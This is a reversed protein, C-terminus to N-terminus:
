KFCNPSLRLRFSVGPRIQEVAPVLIKPDNVVHTFVYGIHFTTLRPWLTGVDKYAEVRGYDNEDESDDSENEEHDDVGDDGDGEM